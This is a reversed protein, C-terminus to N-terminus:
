DVAAITVVPAQATITVGPRAATITATLLGELLTTGAHGAPQNLILTQVAGAVTADQEIYVGGAPQALSLAQLAGDITTVNATDVTGAYLSVALTLLAAEVTANIQIHVSGAPQNLNLTQLAGAVTTDQKIHAVGAPQTFALTQLAGVVAADQQINVAGAPQALAMTQLAGNITANTGPDAATFNDIRGNEGGIAYLRVGARGAATITNDTSSIREVGAIFVKKTANRIELKVARSDGAALAEPWSDLLTFSGNVNRYLEWAGDPGNYRAMYFTSASTSCRGIIGPFDDTGGSLTIIADVDYEASQPVGSAYAGRPGTGTGKVNDDASDIVPTTHSTIASWAAGTEGTHSTLDTDASETFTDNVFVAMM